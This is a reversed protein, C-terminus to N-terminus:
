FRPAYGIDVTVSLAAGERLGFTEFASPEGECSVGAADNSAPVSGPAFAALGPGVRLSLEHNRRPGLLAALTLRAATWLGGRRSAERGSACRLRDDGTYVLSQWGLGVVGGGGIEFRGRGLPHRAEVLVGIWGLSMRHRASASATQTAIAAEGGLAVRRRQGLFANGRLGLGLAPLPRLESSGALQAPNSSVLPIFGGMRGRLTQVASPTTSRPPHPEAPGTPTAHTGEPITPGDPTATGDYLSPPDPVADPEVLEVTWPRPWPEPNETQPTGGLARVLEAVEEADPADPDARLYDNYASVAAARRAEHAPSKAPAAMMLRHHCVAINFHLKGSPQLRLADEYHRLATAYDGARAAERARTIAARKAAEGESPAPAPAAAAPAHALAAASPAGSAIALAVALCRWARTAKV